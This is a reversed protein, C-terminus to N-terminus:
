RLAGSPHASGTRAVPSAGSITRSLREADAGVFGLLASGRSTQWPLGLFSLGPVATIGNQHRIRGNVLIGDIDIWSHDARYGTAWLVADVELSSGDAFEAVHGAAGTLRPRLPVQRRRLARLSSGVVLDGKAQIRQALRSTTPVRMLGLRDLWFFLDRGFLRQPLRPPRSGVSLTVEHVDALEDAIQLGSNGGGVVLVRSGAPLQGPNRYEHSHLQLVTPALLAAVDPIYPLQFPGAAVVVQRTRVDGATTTALFGDAVKELHTVRTSLLVPLRHTAAYAALYDAVQDKSPYTGTPAPFPVGPLSDFEAPTFLRISDWRSRWSSGLEPASDLLLPRLGRKQLHYSMALGAQGAGIILVDPVTAEFDREIDM